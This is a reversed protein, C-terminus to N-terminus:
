YQLSASEIESVIDKTKVKIDTYAGNKGWGGVGIFYGNKIKTKTKEFWIYHDIGVVKIAIYKNM